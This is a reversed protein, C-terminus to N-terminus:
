EETEQTLYTDVWLEAMLAAEHKQLLFTERTERPLGRTGLSPHPAGEQPGVACMHVSMCTPLFGKCM